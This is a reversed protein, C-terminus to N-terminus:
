ETFPKIFNDWQINIDKFIEKNTKNGYIREYFKNYNQLIHLSTDVIDIDEVFIIYDSLTVIKENQCRQSIVICRAAILEYIRHTECIKFDENAHVNIFLKCRKVFELRDDRWLGTMNKLKRKLKIMYKNKFEDNCFRIYTGIEINKDKPLDIYHYNPELLKLINNSLRYDNKYNILNEGSYDYINIKVKKYVEKIFKVNGRIIDKNKTCTTCETSILKVDGKFNSEYILYKLIEKFEVLSQFICIHSLDQVNVHKEIKCNNHIVITIYNNDNLKKIFNDVFFDIYRVLKKPILILINNLM